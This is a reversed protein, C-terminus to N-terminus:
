ISIKLEYGQHKRMNIVGVDFILYQGKIGLLIGEIIPNKDFGLSVIKKPYEVVPYKIDVIGTEIEDAGMDDLLDGFQDFIQEKQEELDLESTLGKLMNRWNTKDDFMSKLEVEVQGSILRNEVQVVPIAQTAGQDIWRFPVQSQRTIGVKISSTDSLYVVHPQFCNKLGWDPERCTGKDYHCLEPKVICVDCAALKIFSDYSFGQGYSKKIKKGSDICNITGTFEIKLKTELLQNLYLREEGIPLHYTVTDGLSGQMKLINGCVIM